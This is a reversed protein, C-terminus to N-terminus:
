WDTLKKLHEVVKAGLRRSQDKIRIGIIKEGIATRLKHTLPMDVLRISCPIQHENKPVQLRFKRIGCYVYFELVQLTSNSLNFIESAIRILISFYSFYWKEKM